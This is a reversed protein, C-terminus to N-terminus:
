KSKSQKLMSYFGALRIFGFMILLITGICFYVLLQLNESLNGFGIIQKFPELNISIMIGAFILTKFLLTWNIAFRFVKFVLAIQIIATLSQTILTAVAAGESKYNPILIFNLTLNLIVGFLAMYNLAKLNGNATLLTGFIYTLSIPIFSIILISFPLVSASTDAVYRWNMISNAFFFGLISVLIAGPILLKFPTLVMEYLNKKEKILRAFIPLLLGAFLLAIMNVADLYRFGQAYIGAQLKGDPLLREIMIADIRNYIFMLFILIAYPASEKLLTRTYQKNFKLKIPKIYKSLIILSVIGTLGYAAMQALIFNFITFRYSLLPTFLLTSCIIILLSRDLVSIFAEAKFCHLGTLNARIFQITAVLFQNIILLSLIKLSLNEYGLIFATLLITLIYFAFLLFKISLLKSFYSSVLKPNQAITKSTYNAIGFDLIINFLFTLNLLSFYLGYIETGVRNQVEADIGFIYLPKIILNLLIILALNLVFTRQM